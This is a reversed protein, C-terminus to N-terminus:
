RRRDTCCRACRGAGGRGRRPRRPGRLLWPGRRLPLRGSRHTVLLAILARAFLSRPALSALEGALTALPRNRTSGRHSALPRALRGTCRDPWIPRQEFYEQAALAPEVMHVDSRQVGGVGVHRQVVGAIEVGPAVLAHADPDHARVRDGRGAGVLLIREECGTAVLDVPVGGEVLDGVVDWMDSM